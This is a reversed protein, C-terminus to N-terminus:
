QSTVWCQGLNGLSTISGRDKSINLLERPVTRPAAQELHDQGSRCDKTHPLTVPVISGSDGAVM